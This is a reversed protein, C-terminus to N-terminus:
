KTKSSVKTAFETIMKESAVDVLWFSLEIDRGKKGAAPAIVYAAEKSKGIAVLKSLRKSDKTQFYRKCADRQDNERQANWLGAFDDSLSAFSKKMRKLKVTYTLDCLLVSAEDQARAEEAAGVTGALVLLGLGTSQLAHQVRRARSKLFHLSRM